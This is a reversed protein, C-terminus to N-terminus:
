RFASLQSSWTQNGQIIQPLYKFGTPNNLIPKVDNKLLIDIVQNIFDFQLKLNFAPNQSQIKNFLIWGYELIQIEFASNDLLTNM